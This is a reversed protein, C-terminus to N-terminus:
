HTLECITLLVLIPEMKLSNNFIIKFKGCTEIRSGERIM